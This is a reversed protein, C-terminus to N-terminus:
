DSQGPKSVAKQRSALDRLIRPLRRLAKYSEIQTDMRTAPNGMMVRGAPVNSLVLSGAAVVVDDGVTLNDVVGARGGLVVRDGIVSSGAIAAQGCLLCDRGVIVNHGVQVLNDIKTGSGIRTARITGADIASNAGVEVDDGIEVGGLSHIRHWPGQGQVTESGLTARVREVNSEHETVFSFGDSGIVANPQVVVRDGIRVRRGIRAGPLILGGRGIVAGEGITVQGAIQTGDGIVAGPGIVSLPGVGVNDGIRATHDVVATPHVYDPIDHPTDLMQTLRAMALRARPAIIAAQLGLGQWDAGPWVVAVRAKGLALGPAYAPSMALALDNPGASAPESAGTVSIDTAGFAEAGLAAAIDKVSYAM